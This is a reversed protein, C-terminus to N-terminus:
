GDLGPNMLFHILASAFVAKAITINNIHIFVLTYHPHDSYGGADYKDFKKLEQNNGLRSAQNTANSKFFVFCFPVEVGVNTIM